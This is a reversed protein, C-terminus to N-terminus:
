GPKTYIATAQLVLLENCQLTYSSDITAAKELCVHRLNVCSGCARYEMGVALIRDPVHWLKQRRASAAKEENCIVITAIFLIGIRHHIGFSTLTFFLFSILTAQKVV